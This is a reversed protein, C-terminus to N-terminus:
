KTATDGTQVVVTAPATQTDAWRNLADKLMSAGMFLLMGYKPSVSTLDAATVGGIIKAALCAWKTLDTRNM